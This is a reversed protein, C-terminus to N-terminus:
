FAILDALEPDPLVQLFEEPSLALGEASAVTSSPPGIKVVLPPGESVSASCVLYSAGPSSLQKELTFTSTGGNSARVVIDLGEEPLTLKPSEAAAQLHLAASRWCIYVLEQSLVFIPHAQCAALRV